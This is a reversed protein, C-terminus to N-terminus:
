TLNLKLRAKLKAFPFKCLLLFFLFPVCGIRYRSLTGLNPTSLTLFIVLLVIYSMTSIIIIRYPSRLAPALHPLNYLTLGCLLFNELAMLGHFITPTEGLFPRYLGSILAWPSNALMSQWSPALDFFHVFPGTTHTAVFAQHNESIVQLLRTLYFNPHIFSAGLALVLFIMLWAVVSPASFVRADALRYVVWTSIAPVFFMVAWYYKLNWLFFAALALGCWEWAKPRSRFIVVLFFGAIFALSALALTEKVIGSGWFLVSPVLLFGILAAPVQKPFYVSVKIVLYLAGLFSILAFYCATIWYNEMSLLNIMSVVKVMFLSRTQINTLQAFVPFTDDGSWLFSLYSTADQYFMANLQRADEFFGFTDGVPYYYTYVLGLAIAAAMKLGLAVWLIAPRTCSPRKLIFYVAFAALLLFVMGTLTSM